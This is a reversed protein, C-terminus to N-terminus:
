GPSHPHRRGTRVHLPQLEASGSWERSHRSARGPFPTPRGPRSGTEKPNGMGPHPPFLGRLLAKDRCRGVSADPQGRLAWPGDPRPASQV